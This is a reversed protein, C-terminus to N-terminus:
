APEKSAAHEPPQPPKPLTVAIARRGSGACAEALEAPSMARRDLTALKLLMALNLGALVALPHGEAIRIGCACPSSGFMDAILLVGAGRDAAVVAACMRTRLDADEGVNADVAVVGALADGGVIGEAAGLLTSATRGHGVVVVGVAEHEHAM